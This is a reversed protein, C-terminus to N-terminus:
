ERDSVTKSIGLAPMSQRPRMKSCLASSKL